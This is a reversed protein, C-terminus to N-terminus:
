EVAFFIRACTCMKRVWSESRTALVSACWGTRGLSCGPPGARKLSSRRLQMPVSVFMLMAPRGSHIWKGLCASVRCM